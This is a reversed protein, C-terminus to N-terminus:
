LGGWLKRLMDVVAGLVALTIIVAMAIAAIFVFVSWRPYLVNGVWVLETWWHM